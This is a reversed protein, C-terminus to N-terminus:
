PRSLKLMDLPINEWLTKREFGTKESKQLKFLFHINKSTEINTTKKVKEILLSYYWTKQWTETEFKTKLTKLLFILNEEHFWSHRPLEQRNWSRQCLHTLCSIVGLLKMMKLIMTNVNYISWWIIKRFGLISQQTTWLIMAICWQWQLCFCSKSAKGSNVPDNLVTM